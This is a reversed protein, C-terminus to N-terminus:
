TGAQHQFSSTRFLPERNQIVPIVASLFAWTKYLTNLFHMLLPWILLEGSSILTDLPFWFWDRKMVEKEKYIKGLIISIGPFLLIFVVRFLNATLLCRHGQIWLCSILASILSVLFIKILECIHGMHLNIYFSFKCCILKHFIHSAAKISTM